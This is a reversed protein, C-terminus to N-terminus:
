WKPDLPRDSKFTFIQATSQGLHSDKLEIKIIKATKLVTMIPIRRDSKPLGNAYPSNYLNVEEGSPSDQKGCVEFGAKDDVRIRINCRAREMIEQWGPIEPNAMSELVTDAPDISGGVKFVAPYIGGKYSCLEGPQRREDGYLKNESFLCATQSVEGTMEDTSKTYRWSNTPPEKLEQSASTNGFSQQSTTVKAGFVAFAVIALLIVAAGISAERAFTAPGSGQTQMPRTRNKDQPPTSAAAQHQQTSSPPPPDSPAAATGSATPQPDRCSALQADYLRRKEDSSLVAYAENIEKCKEEAQRQWYAPANAIRDPHVERILGRCATKIEAATAAESIGLLSYFTDAM